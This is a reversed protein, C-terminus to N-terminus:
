RLHRELLHAVLPLYCPDSRRLHFRLLEAGAGYSWALLDATPILPLWPWLRGDRVQAVDALAAFLEASALARDLGCLDRPAPPPRMAIFKGTRASVGARGEGQTGGASPRVVRDAPPIDPGDRVSLPTAPSRFVRGARGDGAPPRRPL